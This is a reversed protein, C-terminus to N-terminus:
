KTITLEKLKKHYAYMINTNTQAVFRYTELLEISACTGIESIIEEPTQIKQEQPADFYTKNPVEDIYMHPFKKRHWANVKDYAKDLAAEVDEDHKAAYKIEIRCNLYPNTPLLENYRIELPEM